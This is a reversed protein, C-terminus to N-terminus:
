LVWWLSNPWFYWSILKTPIKYIINIEFVQKEKSFINWLWCQRKLLQARWRYCNRDLIWCVTRFMENWLTLNRLMSTRIKMKKGLGFIWIWKNVNRGPSWRQRCARINFFRRIHLCLTGPIKKITRLQSSNFHSKLWM